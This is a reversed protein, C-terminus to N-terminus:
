QKLKSATHPISKYLPVFSSRLLNGSLYPIKKMKELNDKAETTEM